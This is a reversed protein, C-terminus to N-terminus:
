SVENANEDQIKVNKINETAAAAVEEKHRYNIHFNLTSEAKFIQPCYNCHFRSPSNPNIRKITVKAQPSNQERLPPRGQKPTQIVSYTTAPRPLISPGCHDVGITPVANPKLKALGAGERADDAFHSACVKDTNRLIKPDRRDIYDRASDEWVKKAEPSIKLPLKFSKVGPKIRARCFACNVM